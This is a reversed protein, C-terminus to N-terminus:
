GWRHGRGEKRDAQEEPQDHQGRKQIERVRVNTDEVVGSIHKAERAVANQLTRKRYHADREQRVVLILLTAVLFGSALILRAHLPIIEFRFGLASFGASSYCLYILVGMFAHEVQWDALLKRGNGHTGLIRRDILSERALHIARVFGGFALLSWIIELIM